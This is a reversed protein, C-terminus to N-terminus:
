KFRKTFMNNLIAMGAANSAKRQNATNKRNQAYWETLKRCSYDLVRKASVQFNMPDNCGISQLAYALVFGEHAAQQARDILRAIQENDLIDGDREIIYKAKEEADIRYKAAQCFQYAADDLEGRLKRPTVIENFQERHKLYLNLARGMRRYARQIGPDDGLSDRTILFVEEASVAIHRVFWTHPRLCPQGSADHTWYMGHPESTPLEVREHLEHTGRVETLDPAHDTLSGRTPTGRDTRDIGRMQQLRTLEEVPSTYGDTLVTM